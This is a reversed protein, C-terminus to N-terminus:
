DSESAKKKQSSPPLPAKKMRELQGLWIHGPVDHRISQLRFATFCNFQFERDDKKGDLWPQWSSMNKCPPECYNLSRM